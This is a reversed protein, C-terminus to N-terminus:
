STTSRRTSSMLAAQFAVQPGQFHSPAPDAKGRIVDVVLQLTRAWALSRNLRRENSWELAEMLWAAIPELAGQFREIEKQFLAQDQRLRPPESAVELLVARLDNIIPSGEPGIEKPRECVLLPPRERLGARRPDLWRSRRPPLRGDIGLNRAKRGRGAGSPHGTQGRGVSGCDSQEGQDPWALRGVLVPGDAEQVVDLIRDALPEQLERAAWRPWRYNMVYRKLMEGVQFYDQIGVTRLTRILVGILQDSFFVYEVYNTFESPKDTALLHLRQLTRVRTAFDYLGSCAIVRDTYAQSKALQVEVFGATTLEKLIHPPFSTSRCVSSISNMHRRSPLGGSWM